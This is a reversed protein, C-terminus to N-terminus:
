CADYLCRKLLMYVGISCCNLVSQVICMLCCCAVFLACYVVCLLCAVSLANCGARSM